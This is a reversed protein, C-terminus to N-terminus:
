IIKRGVFIFSNNSLDFFVEDFIGAIKWSQVFDYSSHKPYIYYYQLHLNLTLFNNLIHM